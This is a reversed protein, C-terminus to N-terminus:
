RENKRDYLMQTIEALLYIVVALVVCVGVTLFIRDVPLETELGFSEIVLFLAYLLSGCVLCFSLTKATVAPLSRERDTDEKQRQTINDGRFNLIAGVVLAGLCTIVAEPIMYSANYSISYLLPAQGEPAFVRWVFYGVIIHSLLRVASAVVGGLAMEMGQSNLKNRFLGGLGLAAFALLYDFLIIAAVALASTAYRLNEAGLMLQLLGYVGGAFLGWKTRYRYALILIPLQSFATVSGGFPLTIAIVSLITAFAIMIASETLRLVKKQTTM